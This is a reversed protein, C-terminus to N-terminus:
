FAPSYAQGFHFRLCSPPQLFVPLFSQLHRFPSRFPPLPELHVGKAKLIVADSHACSYKEVYLKPMPAYKDLVETNTVSLVQMVFTGLDRGQVSMVIGPPQLQSLDHITHGHLAAAQVLAALHSRRSLPGGACRTSCAHYRVSLLLSGRNLCVSALGLDQIVQSDLNRELVKLTDQLQAM